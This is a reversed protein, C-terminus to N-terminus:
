GAMVVWGTTPTWATKTGVQNGAKGSPPLVIPHTPRLYGPGRRRWVCSRGAAYTTVPPPLVIPHTPRLYGLGLRDWLRDVPKGPDVPCRTWGANPWWRRWAVPRWSSPPRGPKLRITPM